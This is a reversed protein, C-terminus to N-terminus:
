TSTDTWTAPHSEGEELSDGYPHTMLDVQTLEYVAAEGIWSRLRRNFEVYHKRWLTLLGLSRLKRLCRSGTSQSMGLARGLTRSSIQFRPGQREIEAEIYEAARQVTDHQGLLRRRLWSANIKPLREFPGCPPLFPDFGDNISNSTASSYM